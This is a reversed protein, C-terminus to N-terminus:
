KTQTTWVAFAIGVTAHHFPLYDLVRAEGGIAEMTSATVIWNRVERTQGRVTDSDLDWIGGLEESRSRQLRSIIWQDLSEDIWGALYGGPDGSLGGLGLIAIKDQSLKGVKALAKGLIPLRHGSVAPNVHANVFIPIIPVAIDQFLFQLTNTLSPPAGALPNGEPKFIRNQNIDFGLDTLEDAFFLAMDPSGNLNTAYGEHTEGLETYQGSGWIESGTFVSLQPTYKPGFIQSKDSLVVILHDPNYTELEMKLTLLSAEIRVLYEDLKAPTEDISSNPQAVDGTLKAYIEEWNCRARYLIPSHSCALGLGITM